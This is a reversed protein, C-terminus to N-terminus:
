FPAKEEDLAREAQRKASWEISREITKIGHLATMGALEINELVDPGATEAPVTITALVTVGNHPHTASATFIWDTM